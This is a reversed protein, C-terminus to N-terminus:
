ITGRLLRLLDAARRIGALEGRVAVRWDETGPGPALTHAFECVAESEFVEALTAACERAWAHRLERWYQLDAGCTIFVVHELLREARDLHRDMAERQAVSTVTRVM